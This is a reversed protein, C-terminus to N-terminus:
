NARMSDNHEQVTISAFLKEYQAVISSKNYHLKVWERGKQGMKSRIKPRSCLFQIAEVLAYPDEPPVHLGCESRQVMATAESDSDAMIIAPRGSSM